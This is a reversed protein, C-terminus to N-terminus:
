KPESSQQESLEALRARLLKEAQYRRGSEGCPDITAADVTENIFDILADLEDENM